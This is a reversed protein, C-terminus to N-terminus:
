GQVFHRIPGIWCAGRTTETEGVGEYPRADAMLHLLAQPNASAVLKTTIGPFPLEGRQVPQYNFVAAHIHASLHSGATLPRLFPKAAAPVDGGAIGVLLALTRKSIRETTFSLWDRVAPIEHALPAHAPSKLLSTGIVCTTEVLGAFAIASSSSLEVLSAVLESIGITGTAEDVDFRVMTSYDGAGTIAYLAEVSPVLAGAQIVYDPVADLGSTPLAVACGGVALFEGFREACDEFGMGFAGIGLGFHGAPFAITRCDAQEFGTSSLKGPEGHLTVTIPEEMPQPYIEYNAAGLSVTRIPAPGDVTGQKQGELLIGSLGVTTIIQKVFKSPNTILLTGNVSLLRKYQTVIVGIGLSSIYDVSGCNLSIRHNGARVADEITAGLHSGWSADIRGTLRLELMQDSKHQTIQM